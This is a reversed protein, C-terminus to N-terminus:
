YDLYQQNNCICCYTGYLKESADKIKLYDDHTWIMFPINVEVFEILHNLRYYEALAAQKQGLTMRPRYYRQMSVNDIDCATIRHSKLLNEAITSMTPICIIVLNTIVDYAEQFHGNILPFLKNVMYKGM